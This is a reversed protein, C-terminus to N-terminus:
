GPEIVTRSRTGVAHLREEDVVLRDGDVPEADEDPLVAADLDDACACERRTRGGAM